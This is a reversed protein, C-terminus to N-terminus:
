GFWCSENVDRYFIATNYRKGRDSASERLDRTRGFKFMFKLEEKEFREIVSVLKGKFLDLNYQAKIKKSAFRKLNRHCATRSM